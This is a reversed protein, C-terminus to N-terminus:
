RWSSAVLAWANGFLSGKKVVEQEFKRFADNLQTLAASKATDDLFSHEISARAITKLARYDIPYDRAARFYENTLDIRSVGADDTSLAVPVNAARYAMLLRGQGDVFARMGCCGCAGTEEKTARTPEGFTRGEDRSTAIWVCRNTEGEKESGRAHWVVYVNGNADAAVSGGGDL